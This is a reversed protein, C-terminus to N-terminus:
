LKLYSPSICMVSVTLLIPLIIMTWLFSITFFFLLNILGDGTNILEDMRKKNGMASEFVEAKAIVKDLNESQARSILGSDLVNQRVSKGQAVTELVEKLMVPAHEYTQSVEDEGIRLSGSGDTNGTM